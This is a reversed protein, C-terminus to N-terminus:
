SVCRRGTFLTCFLHAKAEPFLGGHRPAQKEKKEHPLTNPEFWRGGKLGVGVGKKKTKGGLTGSETVIQKSSTKAERRNERRGPKAEELVKWVKWIELGNGVSTDTCLM